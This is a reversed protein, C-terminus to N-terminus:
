EGNGNYQYLNVGGAIGIPDEHLWKGTVGDYQRNRFTSITDGGIATAWRRPDFTQGRSTLGSGWPGGNSGPIAQAYISNLQGGSDAIVILQGRGDSVVPLWLQTANAMGSVGRKVALLPEDLGPGVVYWWDGNHERAVNSGVYSVRAVGCGRVLLGDANYGCTNPHRTTDPRM